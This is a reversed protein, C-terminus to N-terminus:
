NGPLDLTYVLSEEQGMLSLHAILLETNAMPCAGWPLLCPCHWKSIELSENGYQIWSSYWLLQIKPATETRKLVTRDQWLYFGDLWIMHQSINSCQPSYPSPIFAISLSKYSSYKLGFQYAEPLVCLGKLVWM